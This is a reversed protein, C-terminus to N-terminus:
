GHINITNVHVWSTSNDIKLSRPATNHRGFNQAGGASVVVLRNSVVGGGGHWHVEWALPGGREFSSGHGGKSIGGGRKFSSVHGGGGQTKKVLNCVFQGKKGLKKLTCHCTIPVM